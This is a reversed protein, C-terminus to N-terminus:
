KYIREIGMAVLPAKENGYKEILLDKNVYLIGNKYSTAEEFLFILEKEIDNKLTEVESKNSVVKNDYAYVSVTSGFTGMLINLALFISLIKKM